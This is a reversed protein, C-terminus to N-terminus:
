VPNESFIFQVEGVLSLSFSNHLCSNVLQVLPCFWTPAVLLLWKRHNKSFSPSIRNTKQSHCVEEKWLRLAAAKKGYCNKLFSILFFFLVLVFIFILVFFFRSRVTGGKMNFDLENKWFLCDITVSALDFLRLFFVPADATVGNASSKM